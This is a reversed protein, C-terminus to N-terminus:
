FRADVNKALKSYRAAPMYQLKIVNRPYLASCKRCWVWNRREGIIAHITMHSTQVTKPMLKVVTPVCHNNRPTRLQTYVELRSDSEIYHHLTSCKSFALAEDHHRTHNYIQNQHQFTALPRSALDLKTGSFYKFWCMSGMKVNECGYTPTGPKSRASSSTDYYRRMHLVLVECVPPLCTGKHCPVM